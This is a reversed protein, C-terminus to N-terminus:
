IKVPSIIWAAAFLFGRVRSETVWPKSPGLADFLPMCCRMVRCYSIWSNRGAGKLSKKKKKKKERWSSGSPDMKQGSLSSLTQKAQFSNILQFHLELVQWAFRGRQGWSGM